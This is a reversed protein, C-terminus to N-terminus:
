PRLSLFSQRLFFDAISAERWFCIMLGSRRQQCCDGTRRSHLRGGAPWSRPGAQRAAVDGQWFFACHKLNGPPFSAFSAKKKPPPPPHCFKWITWWRQSTIPNHSIWYRQCNVEALIRWGDPLSETSSPVPRGVVTEIDGVETLERIM